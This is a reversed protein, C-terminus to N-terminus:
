IHIQDWTQETSDFSIEDNDFSLPPIDNKYIFNNQPTKKKLEYFDQVDKNAIITVDVILVQGQSIEGNFNLNNEDIIQNLFELSGYEQLCIDYIDQNARVIVTKM